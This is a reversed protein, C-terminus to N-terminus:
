SSPGPAGSLSLDLRERGARALSEDERLAFGALSRSAAVRFVRLAARRRAARILPLFTQTVAILGVLNVDITQRVEELPSLELPGPFAVGANNVLGYLPNGDLAAAVAERAESIAKADTVDLVLPRVRGNSEDKLRDGDATRRVGGFVMWGRDALHRACMRGIGTSAGTILVARNREGDNM